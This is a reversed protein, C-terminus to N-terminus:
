QTEFSHDENKLERKLIKGVLSMPLSDRFEVVKPVKYVALYKECFEKIEEDTAHEGKKLVIYARVNEGRHPDEIGVVAAESVKPHRYLVEEVERPYVNYGSAIIMDKKRDVIYVFGEEDMKALDGTYLWGDRLARETEAMNNWYGLMVQPGKIVLEGVEGTKMENRGTEIDVIREYTNPLPPGVSGIRRKNADLPNVNAVQSSESLGYGEVILAGTEKEFKNQLDVPLPSAGSICVQVARINYKSIGKYYLISHM